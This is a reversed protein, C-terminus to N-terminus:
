TRAYPVCRHGRVIWYQGRGDAVRVVFEDMAM